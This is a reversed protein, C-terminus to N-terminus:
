YLAVDPQGIPRMGMVYYAEPVPLWNSTDVPRAASINVMLSGDGLNDVAYSGAGSMVM